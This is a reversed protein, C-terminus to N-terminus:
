YTAVVALLDADGAAKALAASDRIEAVTREAYAPDHWAKRNQLNILPLRPKPPNGPAHGEHLGVVNPLTGLTTALFM